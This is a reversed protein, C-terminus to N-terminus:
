GPRRGSGRAFRDGTSFREAVCASGLVLLRAILLDAEAGASRVALGLCGGLTGVVWLRLWDAESERCALRPAEIDKIQTKIETLHSM